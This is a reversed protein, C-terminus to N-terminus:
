KNQRGAVYGREPVDKYEKSRFTQGTSLKVRGLEYPHNRMREPVSWEEVWAEWTEFPKLLVPLPREPLVIHVKPETEMWAHTIEIDHESFLNTVKIFFYPRISGEFYARHMLVKVKERDAKLNADEIKQEEQNPLEKARSEKKIEASVSVVSPTNITEKIDNLLKNFDPSPKKIDWDILEHMHIYRFQIPPKVGQEIVVPVLIERELGEAAEARVWNSDVSNHSWIVVVCRAKSLAEEIIRDFHQGGRIHPDWWTSWGQADFAKALPEVKSRDARAYSIFIDAM